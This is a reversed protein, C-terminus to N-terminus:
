ANYYINNILGEKLEIVMDSKDIIRKDNSILIVTWNNSRDFLRQIIEISDEYDLFRYKDEILLLKPKDAISRAILIKQAISSPLNNGETSIETNIGKPLKEIFENLGVLNVAWDVNEKTAKDRGMTINDYISGEFLLQQFLSDGILGRLYELNLNQINVDNYYLFGDSIKYIGSIVNLLTSKGSGNVGSIVVNQGANIDLNIDRLVTESTNPYSFNLKNLRISIGNEKPVLNEGEDEELELDTVQGVKEISTLIDYVSELSVIIKETSNIILLIIIEAAIFQGINMLQEMVLIGGIALLGLAITAKLIILMWFQTKLIKFHEDRSKLYGTVLEDMRKIPYNTYGALKFSNATRAIEELWHAVKYKYKSEVISTQLGRKGTILFISAM